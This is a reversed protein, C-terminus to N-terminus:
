PRHLRFFRPGDTTPLTVSKNTGDDNVTTTNTVWTTPTGLATAHELAFGSSDISRWSVMVDSGSRLVSLPPLIPLYARAIFASVKSGVSTFTGGVYLDNGLVAQARVVGGGLGSGLASWNSGDWKALHNAAAGGATTFYGGAYLDGGSTALAYVQDNM